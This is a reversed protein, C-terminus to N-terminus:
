TPKILVEVQKSRLASWLANRDTPLWILYRGNGTKTIKRRGVYVWGGSVLEELSM